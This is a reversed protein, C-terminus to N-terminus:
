QPRPQPPPDIGLLASLRHGPPYLAYSAVAVAQKFAEGSLLPRAHPLGRDNYSVEFGERLAFLEGHSYGSHLNYVSPVDVDAFMAVVRRSASELREGECICVYGERRPEELGLALSYRNVAETTETYRHYQDNSAGDAKAAREGECASRYRLAQLRCVRRRCGIGPELLWWAQSATEAVSRALIAAPVASYAGSMLAATAKAQELAARYCVMAWGYALRVPEEGWRGGGAPLERAARLEEIAACGPEPAVRPDVLVSLIEVVEDLLEAHAKLQVEDV